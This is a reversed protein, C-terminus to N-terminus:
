LVARPWALAAVLVVAPQAQARAEGPRGAALGAPQAAVLAEGPRGAALGAPQAAVLAAVLVVAPQAQAVAQRAAAPVAGARGM